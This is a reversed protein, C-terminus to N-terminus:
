RYMVLKLNFINDNKTGIEFIKKSYSTCFAITSLLPPESTAAGFLGTGQKLGDATPLTQLYFLFNCSPPVILLLM